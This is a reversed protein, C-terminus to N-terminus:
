NNTGIRKQTDHKLIRKALLFLLGFVGLILLTIAFSNYVIFQLKISVPKDATVNWYYTGDAVNDANSYSARSPLTVSFQTNLKSVDMIDDPEAEPSPASADREAVSSDEFNEEFDKQGNKEPNDLSTETDGYKQLYEPKLGAQEKNNQIYNMIVKDAQPKLNYVMDVSYLTVFPNHKVDIFRGSKNKTTFGLSSLDIDNRRVNKTLKVAEIRASTDSFKLDTIYDDDIFKKYNDKILQVERKSVNGHSDLDVSFMVNKADIFDVNADIESCGTILPVLMLLTIILKKM